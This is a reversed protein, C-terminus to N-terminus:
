FRFILNASLAQENLKTQLDKDLNYPIFHYNLNLGISNKIGTKIRLSTGLTFNATEISFSSDDRQPEDLKTFLSELAVSALLDWTLKENLPINREVTAGIAFSAPSSTTTDQTEFNVMIDNRDTWIKAVVGFDLKLNKSVPMGFRFGLQPSIGFDTHNKNLPFWLGSVLTFTIGSNWKQYQRQYLLRRINSSKNKQLLQRFAKPGDSFLVCLLYADEETDLTSKLQNALEKTRQDFAEGVPVYDFYVKYRQFEYRNDYTHDNIVAMRGEFSPLNHLYYNEYNEAKFTGNRIEMLIAIRQQPESKGCSGEWREIWDSIEKADSPLDTIAKQCQFAIKECDNITIESTSDSVQGYLQLSYLLVFVTFLKKM